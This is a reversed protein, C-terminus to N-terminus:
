DDIINYKADMQTRITAAISPMAAIATSFVGNIATKLANIDSDRGTWGGASYPAAFDVRVPYRNVDVQQGSKNYYWFYVYFSVTVHIQGGYQNSVGPALWNAATGANTATMVNSAAAPQDTSSEAGFHCPLKSSATWGVAVMPTAEQDTFRYQHITPKDGPETELPLVTIRFDVSAVTEDDEVDYMTAVGCYPTDFYTHDAQFTYGGNEGESGVMCHGDGDTVGYESFTGDHWDVWADCVHGCAADVDDDHGVIGAADGWEITQDDGSVAVFSPVEEEDAVMEAKALARSANGAAGENGVVFSMPFSAQAGDAETITLVAGHVGGTAFQHFITVYETGNRIVIRFAEPNEDSSLTAGNDFAVSFKAQFRSDLNVARPATQDFPASEDAAAGIAQVMIPAGTDDDAVRQVKLFNREGHPSVSIQTVEQGADPGTWPLDFVTSLMRRDELKEFVASQGVARDM